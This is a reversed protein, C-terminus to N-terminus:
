RRVAIAKAQRRRAIACAMPVDAARSASPREVSRRSSFPRREMASPGRACRGLGRIGITAMVPVFPFLVVVRSMACMRARALRVTPMVLESPM